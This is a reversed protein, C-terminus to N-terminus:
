NVALWRYLRGHENGGQVQHRAAPAEEGITAFTKLLHEQKFAERRCEPFPMGVGPGAKARIHRRQRAPIRLQCTEKGDFYCM